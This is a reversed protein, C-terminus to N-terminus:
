FVQEIEGIDSGVNENIFLYNSANDHRKYSEATIIKAPPHPFTPWFPTKISEGVGLIRWVFGWNGDVLLDEISKFSSM